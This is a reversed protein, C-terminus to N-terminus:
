GLGPCLRSHARGGARGARPAGAPSHRVSLPHKEPRPTPRPPRPSSPPLCTQPTEKLADSPPHTGEEAGQGASSLAPIHPSPPSPATPRPERPERPPGASPRGGLCAPPCPLAGGLWVSEKERGSENGPQLIFDVVLVPVCQLVESVLVLGQTYRIRGGHDALHVAQVVWRFLPSRRERPTPRANPAPLLVSRACGIPPFFYYIVALLCVAVVGFYFDRVWVFPM